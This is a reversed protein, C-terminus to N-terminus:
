KGDLPMVVWHPGSPAQVLMMVEHRGAARTQELRKTVEDPSTVRDQAVRLIINGRALRLDAAPSNASVGIIAVAPKGDQFQPTGASQADAVALKLGLDPTIKRVAQTQPPQPGAPDYINNPWNAVPVDISQAAGNRWIKLAVVSGPASAGLSRLLARVDRPEKGNLALVVDGEQIGKTLAPGDNIVGTVIGGSRSPLGLALQIEPTVQQLRLGIFGARMRGYKRMEDVVWTADNAPIALGLGASGSQQGPAYLAWNVGIVEGKLNFLPGGSNGHNIAADTQVFDDIMTSNIDRNLASVVGVSLSSSLGLPNGIAMVTEGIRLADSDGFKVSALPKGADIKLLALDPRQNTAVIKAPFTSGDVFAVTVDYGGEVVHNNTVIYGDSTIVFGSGLARDPVVQDPADEPDSGAKKLVSINVVSNLLPAVIEPLDPADGRQFGASACSAGTVQLLLIVVIM